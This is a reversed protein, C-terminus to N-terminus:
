LRTKRSVRFCMRSLLVMDALVNIAAREREHGHQCSEGTRLSEFILLPRPLLPITRTTAVLNRDQRRIEFRIRLWVARGTTAAEALTISHGLVCQAANIGIASCWGSSSRRKLPGLHLLM